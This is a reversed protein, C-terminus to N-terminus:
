RKKKPTHDAPISLGAALLRAREAETAALYNGTQFHGQLRESLPMVHDGPLYPVVTGDALVLGPDEILWSAEHISLDRVVAEMALFRGEHEPSVFHFALRSAWANHYHSPRDYIGELSLRACVRVLLEQIEESIGLGPHEQGPLQPRELSFHATPDQLLLWEVALLPVDAMAGDDGVPLRKTVKAVVLEMLLLMQTHHRRRAHLRLVQHTPDRGDLHFTLDVFGRERIKALIGYREFAFEIGQVTYFDLARNKRAPRGFLDELDAATLLPEEAAKDDRQLELPDIERAIREFSARVTPRSPRAREEGCLAFRLFNASAVWAEQSYGGGMTVVLPAGIREAADFVRRDRELVGQLSLNFTGLRDGRLVDNGAVYFVLEAEHEELAPLLSADLVALYADDGTGPQVLIQRARSAEVHSWVSGHISYNLVTADEVFGLLNGNGQHFDLDVIAIKGSFGERRLVAIAVAIDNYVCFGSGRDHEAHHFGGGLNFTVRRERAVVSRAASITGGVARRQAVLLRDVDVDAPELGFIHGLVDPDASRELYTIPHFLALEEVSVPPSARVDGPRLLGEEALMSIVTEGRTPDVNSVRSTASMGHAAYASHYWVGVDRELRRAARLRRVWNMVLAGGLELPTTM